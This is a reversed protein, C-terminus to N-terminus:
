QSKIRYIGLSLPAIHFGQGGIGTLKESLHFFRIHLTNGTQRRGNGNVLFRGVPIRTGSNSGHRFNIIIKTQKIRSDPNGMTRLAALDDPFLRYILHHIRNQFQRLPGPNLYQRRDDPSPLALMDFDKLLRFFAAIDPDHHVAVEIIQRFFDFQFFIFLM